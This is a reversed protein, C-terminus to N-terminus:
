TEGRKRAKNAKRRAKRQGPAVERFSRDDFRLDTHETKPVADPDEQVAMQNGLFMSLEQYVTQAGMVAGFGLTSLAPNATLHYGVDEYREEQANWHRRASKHVSFVPAGVFLFSEVPVDRSGHQQEWAAWGEENFVLQGTWDRLKAKRLRKVARQHAKLVKAPGSVQITERASTGAEVAAFFEPVSGYWQNEIQFRPYLKGCFAIIEVRSPRRDESWRPVADLADLVTAFRGRGAYDGYPIRREHPQRVYLPRDEPTNAAVGDYYDRFKSIIRV